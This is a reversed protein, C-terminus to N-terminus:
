VGKKSIQRERIETYEKLEDALQQIVPVYFGVDDEADEADTYSLMACNHQIQEAITLLDKSEVSIIM